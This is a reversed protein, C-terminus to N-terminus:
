NPRAMRRWFLAGGLMIFFVIIVITSADNYVQNALVVDLDAYLVVGCHAQVQYTGVPLGSVDLPGDFAGDTAARSKGIQQGAVTFLVPAGGPCGRGAATSTGGPPIAVPEVLCLLCVDAPQHTFRLRLELGKARKWQLVAVFWRRNQM